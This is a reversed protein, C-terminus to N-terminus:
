DTAVSAFELVMIMSETQLIGSFQVDVTYWRNLLIKKLPQEINISIGSQRLANYTHSLEAFSKDEFIKQVCKVKLLREQTRTLLREAQM